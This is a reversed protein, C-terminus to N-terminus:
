PKSLLRIYREKKIQASVASLCESCRVTGSTFPIHRKTVRSRKKKGLMELIRYHDMLSIMSTHNGKVMKGKHMFYGAFFPSLLWSRLTSRRLPKGGISKAIKTKFGWENNAIDVIQGISYKSTLFMEFMKKILDFREPDPIIYNKGKEEAKTNLYGNYAFGPKDGAAVKNQLRHKVRDSLVMIEEDALGTLVSFILGSDRPKYERESTIISKIIGKRLMWQIRSTDPPNRSARDLRFLILGNAKGSKINELMENFVPRVDPDKASKAEEYTHKLKVKPNQAQLEKFKEKIFDKQEPISKVQREEKDSTSKRAYGCYILNEEKDKDM